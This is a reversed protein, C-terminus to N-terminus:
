FFSKILFARALFRWCARLSIKDFVLWSAHDLFPGIDSDM